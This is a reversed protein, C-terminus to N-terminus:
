LPILERTPPGYGPKRVKGSEKVPPTPPSVESKIEGEEKPLKPTPAIQKSTMQCNKPNMSHLYLTQESSKEFFKVMYSDCGSKLFQRRLFLELKFIRFKFYSNGSALLWYKGPFKIQLLKGRGGGGSPNHSTRFSIFFGPAIQFPLKFFILTKSLYNSWFQSYFQM